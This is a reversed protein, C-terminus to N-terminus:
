ESAAAEGESVGDSTVEASTEEAQSQASSEKSTEAANESEIAEKVSSAFADTPVPTYTSEEHKTDLLNLIFEKISKSSYDTPESNVGGMSYILFPYTKIGDSMIAYFYNTTTASTNTTELPKNETNISSIMNYLVPIDSQSVYSDTEYFDKQKRAEEYMEQPTRNENSTIDFYHRNGYKDILFGTKIYNKEENVTIQMLVFETGIKEIEESVNVSGEDKSNQAAEKLDKRTFFMVTGFIICAVILACIAIIMQKMKM